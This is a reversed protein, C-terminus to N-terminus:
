RPYTIQYVREAEPPAASCLRRHESIAESIVRQRQEATPNWPLPVYVLGLCHPCQLRVERAEVPSQSTERAHISQL